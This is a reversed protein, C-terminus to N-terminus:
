MCSLLFYLTTISLEPQRSKYKVKGNIPQTEIPSRNLRKKKRKNAKLVTILFIYLMHDRYVFQESYLVTNNGTLVVNYLLYRSSKMKYLQFETHMSRGRKEEGGIM